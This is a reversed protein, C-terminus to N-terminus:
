TINLNIIIKMSDMYDELMNVITDEKQKSYEFNQMLLFEIFSLLNYFNLEWYIEERLKSSHTITVYIVQLHLTNQHAINLFSYSHWNFIIKYKQEIKYM